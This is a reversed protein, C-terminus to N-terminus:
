VYRDAEALFGTAPPEVIVLRGDLLRDAIRCMGRDMAPSYLQRCLRNCIEEVTVQDIIVPVNSGSM